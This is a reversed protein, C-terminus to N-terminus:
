QETWTTGDWTWTDGWYTYCCGRGGFLVIQRRANDYAMAMDARPSPSAEPFLQTWARGHWSWTTDLYTGWTYGGFMTTSGRAQDYALGMASTDPPRPRSRERIWSAGNWTWTDGKYGPHCPEDFCQEGGYLVVHGGAARAMGPHDRWPPAHPPDLETWAAGDWTWTAARADGAGPSFLVVLETAADFALGPVEGQPPPSIPPDQEVWDTGDWVWTDNFGYGGFMVVERRAPDSVM